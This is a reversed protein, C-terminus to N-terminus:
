NAADQWEKSTHLYFFDPQLYIIKYGGENADEVWMIGKKALSGVVGRVQKIDVNTIKALDSAIVDSFFPEKDLATIFATLVQNELETLNLDNLTQM